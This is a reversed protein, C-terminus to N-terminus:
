AALINQSVDEKKTVFLRSGVMKVNGNTEFLEFQMTHIM